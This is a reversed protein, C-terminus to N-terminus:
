QKLEDVTVKASRKSRRSEGGAGLVALEPLLFM